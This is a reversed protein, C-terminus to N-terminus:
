PMPTPLETGLALPEEALDLVRLGPELREDVRPVEGLHVREGLGGAQVRLLGPQGVEEGLQEVAGAERDEALGRGAPAHVVAPHEVVHLADAELLVGDHDDVLGVVGV